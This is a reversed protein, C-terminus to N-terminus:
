FYWKLTSLDICTGCKKKNLLSWYECDYAPLSETMLTYIMEFKFNGLIYLPNKILQTSDSTISRVQRSGVINKPPALPHLM